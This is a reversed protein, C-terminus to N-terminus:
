DCVRCARPGDEIKQLVRACTAVGVFIDSPHVLCDVALLRDEASEAVKFEEAQRLIRKTRTKTLITTSLIGPALTQSNAVVIRDAPGSDGVHVGANTAEM